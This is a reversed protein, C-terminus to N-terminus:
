PRGGSGIGARSPRDYADRLWRHLRETQLELRHAPGSRRAASRAGVAARRCIAYDEQQVQEMLKLGQQLDESLSAASGPLGYGIAGVVCEHVDTPLVWSVFFTGDPEFTAVFNPHVVVRFSGQRRADDLGPLLRDGPLPDRPVFQAFSTNHGGAWLQTDPIRYVDAVSDRHVTPIHYADLNIDWFHKWNVKQRTYSRPTAEADELPYGATLRDADELWSELPPAHEDLTVFVFRRWRQVRVPSLDMAPPDPPEQLDSGFPAARFRGDLGFAWGHYPCRIHGGCSGSGRLLTVGRHPCVNVHGALRGGDTRVVVVPETGVMATVYDGPAALEAEDAVFVWSTPFVTRVEHAYTDPDHYHRGDLFAAGDVSAPGTREAATM